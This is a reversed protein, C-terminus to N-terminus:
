GGKRENESVPLFEGGASNISPADNESKVTKKKNRKKTKPIQWSSANISNANDVDKRPASSGNSNASLGGVAPSAPLSATSKGKAQPIKTQIKISSASPTHRHGRETGPSLTRVEQVASLQRGLPFPLLSPKHSSDTPTKAVHGNSLPEVIAASQARETLM